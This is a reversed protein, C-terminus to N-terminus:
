ADRAHLRAALEARSRIDLKAYIKSLNSEVARVSVFLKAAVEKNSLGDAVLDAVRRETETLDGSARVRGPIRALEAAARESWLAAGLGDFVELAETLSTRAAARHKARREIQGRAVLTRGREFPQQLREHAELAVDLATRASDNDGRAAAVLARGRAAVAAHWARRTPRGKEEVYAITTEADALRGTAVLADIENQVVHHISVEGVGMRRLEASAPALHHLAAEADGASLDAFGLVGASRAAYTRDSTEQAIAFARGASDRAEDVNGLHAQVLGHVMLGICREQAIGVNIGISMCRRALRAAESWSGARLEIDALRLLVGIQWGANGAKELRELEARILPRARDPSDTYALILGFQFSPRQFAPFGDLRRELELARALEEEPYPLGLYMLRYCLDATTIAVLRDDGAEDACRAAARTHEISRMLDGTLATCIALQVHAAASVIPEGGAEELAQEAFSISEVFSSGLDALQHLLNAREVGPALEAILQELIARGRATDGSAVHHQVTDARRRRRGEEDGAPTLSAARELLAAAAEPAGSADARSAAAELEAAVAEDPEETALALHRGREVPDTAAEALRRHAARREWPTASGYAVSALLPHSFRVREDDLRLVSERVAEAVGTSGGAARELLLATPQTSAAALLTADRAGSSLADLRRRLLDGLSEPVPLTSLDDWGPSQLLMQGIELAYFPNGGCAAHLELLRPRPLTLGLRDNLLAGVETAPLPELEVDAVMEALPARDLGLHPPLGQETRKAVLVRTPTDALRRLAFELAHESPADLWQLDDVAIVLPGEAALTGLLEAVARSVALRSVPETSYSRQLAHDLAERQPDPLETSADVVPGLLDGIAAFPLEAESEAPQAVLTRLGLDRARRVGERWITTKGIGAEGSLVIARAGPAEDDLIALVRRLEDGRGLIQSDM